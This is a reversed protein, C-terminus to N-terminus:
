AGIDTTAAEARMVLRIQDRSVVRLGQREYLAVARPNARLVQLKLARGANAAQALLWRLIETGIGRNQWAPLLELLGLYLEHPRDEVVLVGVDQAAVQIVHRAHRCFGDAFMRRQVAEDWGWTQEVYSRLAAKHLEFAWEFDGDSSARL